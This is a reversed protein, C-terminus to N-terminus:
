FKLSQVLRLMEDQNAEIRKLLARVVGPTWAINALALKPDNTLWLKLLGGLRGQDANIKVLKLVNESDITGKIVHGLSLRRLYEAVTLSARAANEKILVEEDPLVPVRLHKGHKRTDIGPKKTQM